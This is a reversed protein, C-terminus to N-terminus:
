QLSRWVASLRALKSPTAHEIHNSLYKALMSFLLKPAIPKALYDNMGAQIFREKDGHIANATLAIIPVQACVSHDSRIMKTASIGDLVPMQIDMFVLDVNEKQLLEYAQQGDAVIQVHCGQQELYTKIVLQNNANDEAVLIRIGQFPKVENLTRTTAHDTLEKSSSLQIGLHFLHEELIQIARPLHSLKFAGNFTVENDSTKQHLSNKGLLDILLICPEQPCFLAKIRERTQVILLPDTVVIADPCQLGDCAQALHTVLTYGVQYRKLMHEVAQNLLPKDGVVWVSPAKSNGTICGKVRMMETDIQLPYEVTFESGIGLQSTVSISGGVADCIQRCIALGLGSGGHQRTISSDSQIFPEFMTHLKEKAIGIGTDSVSLKLTYSDEALKCCQASVTLTGSDTFKIATALLNIVIQRIRAHDGIVFSPVDPYFDLVLELGKSVAGGCVIDIGEELCTDLRFSDNNLTLAQAEFRSYTLVDDLISLLADGSTKIMQTYRMQEGTLGSDHLIDASGIVANLPTRIEHSINAMFRSKSEALIEAQHKAEILVQEAEVREQIDVLTAAISTLSNNYSGEVPTLTIEVWCGKGHKDVLRIDFRRIDRKGERYDYLATKVKNIDGDAVYDTILEGISDQEQCQLLRQWAQNIFLLRGDVDMRLVIDPINDVVSHYNYEIEAMAAEAQVRETINTEIAIFNKVRGLEDSVPTADIAVWYVTGDKAYNITEVQFPLGHKIADSMIKRAETDSQPGQLLQGPSKGVVEECLYGTLAEFSHNVWEIMGCRDTIIVLNSTHSAVLSLRKAYEQQQTLLRQFDKHRQIDYLSGILGEHDDYALRLEFWHALGYNDALQLEISRSQAGNLIACSYTTILLVDRSSMLDTLQRGVVQDVPYGLKHLWSENVYSITFNIDCEFICEDLLALLKAQRRNATSLKEVLAYQIQVQLEDNNEM